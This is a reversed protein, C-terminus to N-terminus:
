VSTEEPAPALLKAWHRKEWHMAERYNRYEREKRKFDKHHSEWKGNRKVPPMVKHCMEHFLTLELVSLPVFDQKLRPHIRILNKKEDFSGFKISRRNPTKVNKGWEIQIDLQGDFYERNLQDFLFTLDREEHPVEAPDESELTQARNEERVMLLLNRQNEDLGDRKLIQGLVQEQLSARVRLPDADFLDFYGENFVEVLVLSKTVDVRIQGLFEFGNKKCRFIQKSQNPNGSLPGEGLYVTGLHVRKSKQIVKSVAM